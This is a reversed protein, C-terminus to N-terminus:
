IDDKDENCRNLFTEFDEISQKNNSLFAEVKTSANDQIEVVRAGNSLAMLRLHESISTYRSAGIVLFIDGCRLLEVLDYAMQYNPALDGYLVIKNPESADGHLCVVNKSGAKQHLGDINMTIVPIGYKALANHADNPTANKSAEILINLANQYEVPNNNAYERSLKERLNGMDEFTPIGSEKSIGSGTFALIM